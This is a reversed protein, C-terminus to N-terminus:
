FRMRLELQHITGLDQHVDSFYGQYGDALPAREDEINKITYKVRSSYGSIEFKTWMALNITTMEPIYYGQGDIIGFKSQIFDGKTLGTISGGWNGANYYLKYSHKEEMVGDKGLLDGFGGFTYESPITGDDILSQLTAFQATAKQTFEDTFSGAYKFTFNGFSYNISIDLGEINRTALNLYEDQVLNTMGRPCIGAEAFASDLTPESGDLLEITDTGDYSDIGALAPNGIFSECNSNGAIIRQALDLLTHNSRGFLGITNEKEISWLDATILLNDIAAPEIIIGLSTNTSEESKLGDDITKAPSYRIITDDYDDAGIYKYVMDDRTGRRAVEQQHIQILNPARLSTSISGRLRVSNSIDWGVAFKGVTTSGVNKIDEYRVAAQAFINETVPIQFESFVSLTDRSGYTDTTPSSGIVASSYPHTWGFEFDYTVTGDLLPDRNDSYKEYRHEFGLLMSVDGAPLTFVDPKSIKFDFMKLDSVDLRYVDIYAREINDNNISFPNIAAPTNDNLGEYLLQASLRNHTIDNMKAKSVLFASDWSWNNETIGRFGMLYRTTSKKVDLLRAATNPRWGDILWTRGIDENTALEIQQAWYNTRMYGKQVSSVGAPEKRKQYESGYKGIEVYMEDGNSLQRNIFLFINHRELEGRADRLLNPNQYYGSGSTDPHLCTGYGTLLTDSAGNCSSPTKGTTPDIGTLPIIQTEGKSDTFFDSGSRDLQAYNYSYCNRLNSDGRFNENESSVMQRYDCASWRPDETAPLNDRQYYDFSFNVNTSGDNLDKGIKFNIRNGANPDFNEFESIRIKLEAGVYDTELVNNIVGAVADAGYIASAGDRLVEVRDISLVPIAQSNVTMTPVFDGGILETQYGANNVLRRGNLLVLTNGVGLNRLNYAGSDGRAANVGGSTEESENFYNAGQEVMEELLEDGSDIGLADIDESSIITVPLVGTIKAGKIQSGVVVVEEVESSAAEEQSFLFSTIVLPFVLFYKNSM